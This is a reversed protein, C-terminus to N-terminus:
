WPRAKAAIENKAHYRVIEVFRKSITALAAARSPPKKGGDNYRQAILQVDLARLRKDAEIAAKVSEFKSRDTGASDLLGAYYAV